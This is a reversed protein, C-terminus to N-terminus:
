QALYGGDVVMNHGNVFSASDSCLWVVAEAVEAPSGSRKAPQQMLLAARSLRKRVGKFLRDSFSGSDHGAVLARDLMGTDIYGPCVANIRIGFRMYELAASKTLGLVGHKSASYASFRSLGVHGAVSSTNVIAGQGQKLMEAIEFKMCLWVGKLNIAITRDWDQELASATRARVGEIGANNHACDLRGYLTATQRVLAQVEKRVSVDTRIFVAEGGMGKIQAVTEEGGAVQVDAAVVKAGNRAFALASARGIGAAAGTVLAVKGKFIPADSKM